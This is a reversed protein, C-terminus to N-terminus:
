LTANLEEGLTDNLKPLTLAVDVYSSIATIGLTGINGYHVTRNYFDEPKEGFIIFPSLLHRQELLEQATELLKNSEETLLKFQEAQDLLDSFKDQLVAQQIGSSLQLMSQAWPAGTVGGMSYLKYGGYVIALVAILTAVDQGFVKVFLKFAKQLILGTLIVDVIVIAVLAAAGSLGLAQAIAQGGDSGGTYITIVIAIIIMLTRFVGTQYWKVKTVVRSNFVMHLSRAYLIERDGISYNQSITRDIPILLIDDEEDATTTYEQFVFYTMKLNSVYIEEYLGDAVQRRYKHVKTPTSIVSTTGSETDYYDVDVNVSEFVSTHTGVNGISGAVMRKYIGENHLAMKFQADKIVITNQKPRGSQLATKVSSLASLTTGDMTAHLTDFYDFLYRCEIPDTSVAPVGMVLMAQEVDAIDPNEDISEAMIDYDIGLYKVLKKSTRYADTNKNSIVSQKNYRFYAFPFYSGSVAPGETYVADLTPYTGSDNKYIWYKTTGNVIYKAHFYDAADDIGSMSITFTDEQLAQNVPQWVYTVKLHLATATSSVNVLSQETMAAVANDLVARDPTYGAQASRGWQALAGAEFSNKQSEPVVVVMDKLYVPVGKTTTLGALQNTETSYGHDSILKMWGVHLTNPPGFHSYEILVQQGENAEIVAEVQARGQTSSYVEGSPLGHVYHDEAYNYMREARVGISAALEEIVYDAINGDQFFSKITGTDVSNPLRDDEILRSAVTGVQTVYKSSFLGM